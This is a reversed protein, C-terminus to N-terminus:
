GQISSQLLTVQTELATMRTKLAEIEEQRILMLQQLQKKSILNNVATQLQNLVEEILLIRNNEANNFSM